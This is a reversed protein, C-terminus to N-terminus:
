QILHNATKCAETTQQGTIEQKKRGIRQQGVSQIQKIQQQQCQHAGDPQIQQLNLYQFLNRGEGHIQTIIELRHVANQKRHEEKMLRPQQIQTKIQAQQQNHKRHPQLRKRSIAFHCTAFLINGCM